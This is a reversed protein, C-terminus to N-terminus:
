DEDKKNYSRIRMLVIITAILIMAMGSTSVITFLLTQKHESLRGMMSPEDKNDAKNIFQYAKIKLDSDVIVCDKTLSLRKQSNRLLRTVNGLASDNAGTVALIGRNEKFPSEMLQLIAIKTAYDDSLILQENSLYKTGSDDYAFHLQDNISQILENDPYTGATIINYDTDNKDFESSHKVYFTGYPDVGDGYMGMIQAYINLDESSPNDPIVVMLDNFKGDTRFPSPKLDFTLVNKMAAPLYLTSESSVYAWPMQDQRPTCILDKIELDFAIKISGATTGVVDSPMAFTLEDGMAKDKELRKSAIPVDGWFVTIVSREFDLNESYRFDLTIKGADSLFYDESFPLYVNQEQHFPGVFTLGKGIIDNLKYNGAVMQSLAKSNVVIESSGLRVAAKSGTEQTVRDEDMLM